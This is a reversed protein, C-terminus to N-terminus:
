LMNEAEFSFILESDFRKILLKIIDGEEKNILKSVEELRYNQVQKDNVELVIDGVRLGAIAGPSGPRVKLIEVNNVTTYPVKNQLMLNLLKEKATKDKFAKKNKKDRQVMFNVGDYVIEIGSTNYYFPDKFNKNKKLTIINNFFDFVVNFRRLIEGGLSGNRNESNKMFNLAEANPFALKADSLLYGGIYFNKAKARKGYIDGSLGTGLFDKFHKTPVRMKKEDNEFLWIGDSSGTDVFLNIPVFGETDLLIYADILPDGNDYYFSLREVGKRKKHTYSRPNHFKLFSSEYNIEIIFSRFLNAGIIGHIPIGMYSSINIRKDLVMYFQQDRGEIAGIKFLNGKSSFAIISDGEGFGKISVESIDKHKISDTEFSNFIIPKSVGSDLIFFREVGNVDIPFVILNNVLEFKIKEYKKGEPLSFGQSVCFIPLFFVVILAKRLM